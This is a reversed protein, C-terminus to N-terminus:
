LQSSVSRHAFESIQQDTMGAKLMLKYSLPEILDDATRFLHQLATLESVLQRHRLPDVLLAFSDRYYRHIFRNRQDLARQLIEDVEHDFSVAKRAKILLKGLPLKDLSQIENLYNERWNSANETVYIGTLMGSLSEEFSQAAFLTLGIHFFVEKSTENIAIM